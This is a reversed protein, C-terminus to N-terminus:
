QGVKDLGGQKVLDRLAATQSANLSLADGNDPVIVIGGDKGWYLKPCCDDKGCNLVAFPVSESQFNKM